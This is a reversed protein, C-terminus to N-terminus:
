VRVCVYMKNQEFLVILMVSLQVALDVPCQCGGMFIHFICFLLFYFWSSSKMYNSLRINEYKKTKTILIYSFDVTDHLTKVNHLLVDM